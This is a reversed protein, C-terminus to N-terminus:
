GKASKLKNLHCGLPNRSNTELTAHKTCGSYPCNRLISCNDTQFVKNLGSLRFSFMVSITLFSLDRSNQKRGLSGAALHAQTPPSLFLSVVHSHILSHTHENKNLFYTHSFLPKHTLHSLHFPLNKGVHLTPLLSGCMSRSIFEMGNQVLSRALSSSLSISALSCVYLRCSCCLVCGSKQLRIFLLEAKHEGSALCVRM